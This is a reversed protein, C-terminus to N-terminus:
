DDVAHRDIEVTVGIRGLGPHGCPRVADYGGDAHKTVRTGPIIRGGFVCVVGTIRDLRVSRVVGGAAEGSTRGHAKM